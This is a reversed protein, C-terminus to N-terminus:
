KAGPLMYVFSLTARLYDDTAKKPLMWTANTSKGFDLLYRRFDAGMRIGYRQKFRVIAGGSTEWSFATLQDGFTKTGIEGTDLVILAALNVDLAFAEVINIICGAGVRVASYNVRPLPTTSPVDVEFAHKVYGARIRPEFTDLPIRYVAGGAFEYATTNLEREGQKSKLGIAYDLDAEIGLDSYWRSSVHAGPFWAVGLALNFSPTGGDKGYSSYSSLNTPGEYSLSRWMMRPGLSIVLAPHQTSGPESPQREEGPEEAM